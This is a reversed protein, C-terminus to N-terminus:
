CSVAVFGFWIFVYPNFWYITIYANICERVCTYLSVCLNVSQLNATAGQSHLIESNITINQLTNVCVCVCVCM